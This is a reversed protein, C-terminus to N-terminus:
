LTIPGARLLRGRRRAVLEDNEIVVEGGSIVIKPWGTVERGEYPSYDTQMHSREVAITRKAGPDWIVLDADAGPALVGKAPFLGNLRAPNTATLAVFREPAFARRMVLESFLLPMRTEVGPLGYPMHRVDHRAGTKQELTFCCHDSGITDIAGSLTRQMLEDVLARSRIPPCCVYGEGGGREYVSGDLLLYHPCTESFARVGRARARHVLDVADATSQHVFYVGAGTLEAMALVTAVADTESLPPRSAAHHTVDIRNASALSEQSAEILHNSEAHVYALGGADRLEELVRRLTDAGAMVLGRYTTFMKITTIGDSVLQRIHEPTEDTWSVVCGHLATDTLATEAMKRRQAAVETPSEGALPIAFDVITTTAGHLAALTCQEYDDWTAFDGFDLGVHVHPDVGGPLVWAGDADITKAQAAAPGLPEGANVLGVIKGGGILIHAPGRWGANIAEAGRVVLDIRDEPM